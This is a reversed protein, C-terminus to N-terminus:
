VIRVADIAYAAGNNRNFKGANNANGRLYYTTTATPQLIQVFTHQIQYTSASYRRDYWGEATSGGLCVASYNNGSANPTYRARCNVIWTGASLSITGITVWGGASVSVDTMSSSGEVLVRTGIASSHGALTLGGSAKVNGNWDVTLANSRQTNNTGNGIILAYSGYDRVTDPHISDSEDIENFTGLVFQACKNAITYYGSAHSMDGVTKGFNEAHSYAGEAINSGEAHSYDGIATASNEAHSGEGYAYSYYGEAHSGRRLAKTYYGEAHATYGSAVCELGEAFSYNGVTRTWELSNWAHPSPIDKICIYSKGNHLALDGVHYITTSSYESTAEKAKGFIYYPALESNGSGVEGYGINALRTTGDMAFFRQGKDDIISHAGSSQGIQAGTSTFTATTTYTGATTDVTNFDLSDNDLVMMPLLGDRISIGNTNMLINQGTPNSIFSTDPSLTIHVGAGYTASANSEFWFYQTSDNYLDSFANLDLSGITQAM